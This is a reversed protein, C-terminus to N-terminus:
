LRRRRRGSRWSRSRPAAAPKTQCQRQGSGWGRRREPTSAPSWGENASRQRLGAPDGPSPSLTSIRREGPVGKVFHCDRLGAVTAWSHNRHWARTPAAACASRSKIRRAALPATAVPQWKMRPLFMGLTPAALVRQQPRYAAIRLTCSRTDEGLCLSGLELILTLSPRRRRRDAQHNPPPNKDAKSRDRSSPRQRNPGLLSHQRM